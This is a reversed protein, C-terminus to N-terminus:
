IQISRTIQSIHTKIMNYGFLVCFASVTVIDGPIASLNFKYVNILFGPQKDYFHSQNLVGNKEIAIRYIYHISRFPSFHFVIVTLTDTNAQYQLYMYRPPTANITPMLSVCTLLTIFFIGTYKVFRM